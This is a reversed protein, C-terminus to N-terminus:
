NLHESVKKITYKEDDSILHQLEAIAIEVTSVILLESFTSNMSGNKVGNLTAIKEL